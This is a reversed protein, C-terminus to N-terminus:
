FWDFHSALGGRLPRKRKKKAKADDAAYSEDPPKMSLSIRQNAKDIKLVRVEVEQGEKVVDGVTKVRRTSLESIHILGEIGPALEVFAGFDMIKTVLGKFKEKVPFTKEIDAWPNGQTQKLSISIRRRKKDARLVEVEIEDGVKVIDDAKAPRKSWSMEALPLLAEIGKELEVFAGFDALRLIKGKVRTGKAYKEAVSEWPDPQAQKLGLSVKNKERDVKLVCVEIEQGQQLAETPHKIHSWSMDTIHILGDVGGLDVFAGYDTVNTVKGTRKQGEILENLLNKRRNKRDKELYKRRSVILDHTARDVQTVICSIHEGILQSIDRMRKADVHSAPLFARAGGIDVDLGGKNMGTVVGDLQDGPKVAKWFAREEAGHVSLVLMDATDDAKEILVMIEHNEGPLPQKEFEAIPLKGQKRGDLDVIVEDATIRLVKGKHATGAAFTQDKETEAPPEPVSSAAPPDAPADASDSPEAAQAAPQDSEVPAPEMPTPQEEPQNPADSM